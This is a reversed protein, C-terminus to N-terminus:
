GPPIEAKKPPLTSPVPPMGLSSPLPGAQNVFEEMGYAKSANKCKIKVINPLTIAMSLCPFQPQFFITDVTGHCFGSPAGFGVSKVAM